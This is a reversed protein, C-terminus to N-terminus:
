RLDPIQQGQPPHAAKGQGKPIQRTITGNDLHRTTTMVQALHVNLSGVAEVKSESDEGTVPDALALGEEELAAVQGVPVPYCRHKERYAESSSTYRHMRALQGAELKKALTLHPAPRSSRLCSHWPLASPIMFIPAYDM